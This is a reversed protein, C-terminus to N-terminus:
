RDDSDGINPVRRFVFISGRHGQVIRLDDDCYLVDCYVQGHGGIPRKLEYSLVGDEPDMKYLKAGLLCKAALVRAYERVDRRPAHSEDFVKRWRDLDKTSEDNQVKIEGGSFWISLRNPTDPDPVCYGHNTLIGHIPQDLVFERDISSEDSTAPQGKRTQNAEITFAVVIDYNRVAPRSTQKGKHNTATMGGIMSSQLHQMGRPVNMSRKRDHNHILNNSNWLPLSGGNSAPHDRPRVINYSGQVSCKLQTPRFMDFSMRGLTYLYEGKENRGLCDSYTPKSLTSWSGDLYFPSSLALGSAEEASSSSWRADWGKAAYCAKLVQLCSLFAPTTVDGGSRKLDETLTMKAAVIHSVAGTDNTSLPINRYPTNPQSVFASSAACSATRNPTTSNTCNHRQQLTTDNQAAQDSSLVHCHKRKQQKCSSSSDKEGNNEQLQQAQKRETKTQVWWKEYLSQADLAASDADVPSISNLFCESYYSASTKARKRENNRCFPAIPQRVLPAVAADLTVPRLAFQSSHDTATTPTANSKRHNNNSRSSVHHDASVQIPSDLSTAERGVAARAAAHSSLLPFSRLSLSSSSMISYDGANAVLAQPHQAQASSSGATRLTSQQDDRWHHPHM